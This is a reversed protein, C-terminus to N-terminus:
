FDYSDVRGHRFWVSSGDAYTWVETGDSWRHPRGKYGISQIAEQKTMGIVAYQARYYRAPFMSCGALFLGLVVVLLTKM